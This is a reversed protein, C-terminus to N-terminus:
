QKAKAIKLQELLWVEADEKTSFANSPVTSKSLSSALKILLRVGFSSVVVAEAVQGIEVELYAEIIERKVYLNPPFNLIAYCGGEIVGKLLLAAERATEATDPENWDSRPHVEIIGDPRITIETASSQMKKM